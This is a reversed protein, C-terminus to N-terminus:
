KRAQKIAAMVDHGELRKLSGKRCAKESFSTVKDPSPSTIALPVPDKTHVGFRSSTSHDCTVVITLNKIKKLFAFFNRDIDELTKVKGKFDKNHSFGDPSKIQVYLSSFKKLKKLVAAALLRNSEPKELIKMKLLRGIGIDVPSDAFTGWSGKLKKLRPLSSGADRLLIHNAKENELILDAKETVENVLWATNKSEVSRDLPVCKKVNVNFRRKTATSVHNKVIRYGPHTNQVRDSAAPIVLAFRYGKTHHFRVGEIGIEHNLKECLRKTEEPPLKVSPEKIVGNKVFSFNGRIAVGKFRIGAGLAELPGRGTYYEFPDYGLLSLVAQDSEPAIGKIPYVIGTQGQEAILDLNPTRAKGLASRGPPESAGDLVVFLLKM